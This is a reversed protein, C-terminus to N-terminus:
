RIQQTSDVQFGDSPLSLLEWKCEVQVEAKRALYNQELVVAVLNYSCGVEEARGTEM